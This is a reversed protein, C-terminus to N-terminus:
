EGANGAFPYAALKTYIAGGPTLDSKFLCLESATFQRAEYASSASLERLLSDPESLTKIRALTLHPLFPREERPFSMESLKKELKAQFVTLRKTDGEMELYVVRPRKASPFTGLGRLSLTFPADAAAAQGCAASIQEVEMASVDGFFKLTLHLGEPKVWRINGTVIRQLRGQLRAIERNLGDPPAIALFLRFAGNDRM